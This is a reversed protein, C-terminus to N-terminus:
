TQMATLIEQEVYPVILLTTTKILAYSLGDLSCMNFKYSSLNFATMAITQMTGAAAPFLLLVRTRVSPIAQVLLLSVTIRMAAYILGVQFVYTPYNVNYNLLGVHSAAILPATILPSVVFAAVYEPLHSLAYSIAPLICLLMYTAATVCMNRSTAIQWQSRWHQLTAALSLVCTSAILCVVLTSSDGRILVVNVHTMSM